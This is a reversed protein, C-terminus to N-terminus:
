LDPRQRGLLERTHPLSGSLPALKCSAVRRRRRSSSSRTSLRATPVRVDVEVCVTAWALSKQLPSHLCTNPVPAEGPHWAQRGLRDACHTGPWERWGLIRPARFSDGAKRIM